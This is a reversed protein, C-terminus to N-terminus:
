GAPPAWSARANTYDCKGPHAKSEACHAEDETRWGECWILFAAGLIIETCFFQLFRLFFWPPATSFHDKSLGAIIHFFLLVSKLIDNKDAILLPKIMQLFM